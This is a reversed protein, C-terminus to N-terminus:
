DTTEFNWHWPSHCVIEAHTMLFCFFGLEKYYHMDIQQTRSELEFIKFKNSRIWNKYHSVQLLTETFDTKRSVQIDRSYFWGFCFLWWTKNVRWLNTHIRRSAHLGSKTWGMGRCSLISNYKNCALFHIESAVLFSWTSLHSTIITIYFTVKSQIAGCITKITKQPLLIFYNAPDQQYLSLM